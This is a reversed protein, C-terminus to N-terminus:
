EVSGTFFAVPGALFSASPDLVHTQYAAAAVAATPAAPSYPAYNPSKQSFLRNSAPNKSVSVLGHRLSLKLPNIQSSPNILNRIKKKKEGSADYRGQSLRLGPECERVKLNSSSSCAVM